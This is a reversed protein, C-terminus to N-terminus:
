MTLGAFPAVVSLPLFSLSLADCLTQIVALCGFGLLWRWQQYIPLGAEVEGSRKMLALGAASSLCGVVILPLGLLLNM